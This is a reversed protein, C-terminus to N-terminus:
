NLGISLTSDMQSIDLHLYLINPIHPYSGFKHPHHFKSLIYTQTRTSLLLIHIKNWTIHHRTTSKFYLQFIYLIGWFSHKKSGFGKSSKSKPCDVQCRFIDPFSYGLFFALLFYCLKNRSPGGKSRNRYNFEIMGAIGFVKFIM